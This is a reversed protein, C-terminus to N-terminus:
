CIRAKVLNAKIDILFQIYILLIADTAQPFYECFAKGVQM